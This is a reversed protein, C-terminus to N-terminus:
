ELNTINGSHISVYFINVKNMRVKWPSVCMVALWKTSRFILAGIVVEGFLM